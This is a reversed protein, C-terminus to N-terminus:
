PAVYSSAGASAWSMLLVIDPCPWLSM